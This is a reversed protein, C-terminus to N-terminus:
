MDELKGTAPNYRRVKPAGAPAAAPAQIPQTEYYGAIGATAPNSKAIDVKRTHEVITHQAARKSANAIQKLESPTMSDIDGSMAKEALKGESETIAGEGRMSKRGQLTLEALGRVVQRTNAIKEANDAGGVGLTDGIQAISMRKSALPGAFIKNSDIAQVIRDASDIQATAGQAAIASDKLMPGVQGAISEATKLETKTSINPAGAKAVQKKYDIYQQNPVVGNPGMGFPQNPDQPAFSNAEQGYPNQWVGNVNEMKDRANIGKLYKTDGLENQVFGRGFQDYQPTTAYKGSELSKEFMKNGMAQASPDSSQLALAMAKARDPAVAARDYAPGQMGVEEPADHMAQQGQLAQVIKQMKAAKAQQEQVQRQQVQEGLQAQENDLGQQGYAGGISQALQALIQMPTHQIARGSIVQTELPQAGQKRLQDIMAQRRQMTLQDVQLDAPGPTKGFNIANVFPM